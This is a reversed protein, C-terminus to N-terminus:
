FYPLDLCATFSALQTFSPISGKRRRKKSSTILYLHPKFGSSWSQLLGLPFSSGLRMIGTVVLGLVGIDAILVTCLKQGRSVAETYSVRSGRYSTFTSGQWVSEWVPGRFWCCWCWRSSTLLASEWTHEWVGPDSGPAPGAEQTGVRRWSTRPFQILVTSGWGPQADSHAQAKFCCRSGGGM